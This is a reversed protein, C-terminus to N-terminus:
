LRRELIVTNHYNVYEAAVQHPPENSLATLDLAMGGYDLIAHHNLYVVLINEAKDPGNDPNGLPKLHHGESYTRGGSL